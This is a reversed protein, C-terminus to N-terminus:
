CLLYLPPHNWRFISCNITDQHSTVLETLQGLHSLITVEGGGRQRRGRLRHWGLLGGRSGSLRSGESSSFISSRGNGEQLLLFILVNFSPMRRYIILSNDCLWDFTFFTYSKSYIIHTTLTPNSLLLLSCLCYFCFFPFFLILSQRHDERFAWIVFM